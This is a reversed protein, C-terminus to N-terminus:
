PLEDNSPLEHAVGDIVEPADYNGNRRDLTHAIREVGVAIREIAIAVDELEHRIRPGNTAIWREARAIAEFM